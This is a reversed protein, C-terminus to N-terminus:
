KKWNRIDWQDGSTIGMANHLCVERMKASDMKKDNGWEINKKYTEIETADAEYAGNLIENLTVVNRCTNTKYDQTNSCTQSDEKDIVATFQAGTPSCIMEEYCHPVNAM